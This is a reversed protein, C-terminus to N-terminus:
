PCAAPLLQSLSPDCKRIVQENPTGDDNLLRGLTQM